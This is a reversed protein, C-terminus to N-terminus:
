FESEDVDEDNESDPEFETAPEEYGGETTGFGYSEANAMYETLDLIQFANLYLSLYFENSVIQAKPNYAISMITGSGISPLRVIPKGTADFAKLKVPVVRDSKKDKFTANTFFHVLVNGTEEGEEDLEEQFPDNYKVKKKAAPKLGEKLKKYEAESLVTLEKVFDDDADFILHVRYKGNKDHRTDPKNLFVWKTPAEPSLLNKTKEPM